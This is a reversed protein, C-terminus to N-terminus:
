KLRRNKMSVQPDAYTETEITVSSDLEVQTKTNIQPKYTNTVYWYDPVGAVNYVSSSFPDKTLSYKINYNQESYNKLDRKKFTSNNQQAATYGMIAWGETNITRKSNIFNWKRNFAQEGYYTAGNDVYKFSMEDKSYQALDIEYRKRIEKKRDTPSSKYLGSGGLAAIPTYDITTYIGYEDASWRVIMDSDVNVNYVKYTQNWDDEFRTQSLMPRNLLKQRSSNKYFSDVTRDFLSFNKQTSKVLNSGDNEQTTWDAVCGMPEYDWWSDGQQQRFEIGIKEFYSDATLGYGTPQGVTIREFPNVSYDIRDASINGATVTDSYHELSTDFTFKSFANNSVNSQSERNVNITVTQDSTFEAFMQTGAPHLLTKVKQRWQKVPIKTQVTYTFNSYFLNDQLVGGNASNLFGTEDAFAKTTAAIGNLRFKFETTKMDVFVNKVPLNSNKETVNSSDIIALRLIEYKESALESLKRESDFGLGGSSIISYVGNGYEGVIKAVYGTDAWQGIDGATGTNVLTVGEEVVVKTYATNNNLQTIGNFHFSDLQNFFTNTSLGPLTLVATQTSGTSAFSVSGNFKNVAAWQTTLGQIGNDSDMQFNFTKWLFTESDFDYPVKLLPKEFGSSVKSATITIKLSQTDDTFAPPVPIFNQFSVRQGVRLGTPSQIVCKYPFTVKIDDSDLFFPTDVFFLSKIEGITDSVPTVEFDLTTSPVTVTPLKKWDGGSVVPIEAIQFDNTQFGNNNIGTRVQVGDIEVARGAADAKTISFNGGFGDQSNASSFKIINGETQFLGRRRVAVRDVTGAEVASVNVIFDKKYETSSLIITDGEVNLAGGNIIDISSLIPLFKFVVFKTTDSADVLRYYSGIQFPYEESIKIKVIPREESDKSIVNGSLVVTVLKDSDDLISALTLDIEAFNVTFDTVQIIAQPFSFFKSDSARLINGKTEFVEIDEDYIM